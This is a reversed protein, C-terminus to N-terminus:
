LVTNMCYVKLVTWCTVPQRHTNIWTASQSHQRDRHWHSRLNCHLNALNNM